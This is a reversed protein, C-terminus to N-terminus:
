CVGGGPPVSCPACAPAVVSSSTIQGGQAPGAHREGGPIRRHMGHARVRAACCRCGLMTIHRGVQKPAEAGAVTAAVAQVAAEAEQLAAEIVGADIPAPAKEAM